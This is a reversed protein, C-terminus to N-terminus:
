RADHSGDPVARVVRFVPYDPAIRRLDAELADPGVGQFFAGIEWKWRRLYARLVAPKEEDPLEVVRIPERRGGVRLEGEGSARINRVWQAVGRPAVLYREGDLPLPNVPTARWAGSTRGRVALIRSGYVSLGIRTLGAVTPNFVRATFWDPHVYRQTALSIENMANEENTAKARENAAVARRADPGYAQSAQAVM